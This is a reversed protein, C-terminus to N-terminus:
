GRPHAAASGERGESARDLPNGEPDFKIPDRVYGELREEVYRSSITYWDRCQKGEIVMQAVMFGMEMSDHMDNNLLLGHRGYSFLNAVESLGGIVRELDAEFGLSYIPYVHPANMVFGDLIVRPHLGMVKLDNMAMGIMFDDSANWIYDNFDCTYDLCVVTRGPPCSGRNLNKQESLRNAYLREDLLYIWHADSFQDQGLVLHVCRLSRYKINRAGALSHHFPTAALLNSLHPLPISSLVAGCEISELNGNLTFEVSRAKNESVKISTPAAGLIVRGGSEEVHRSLSEFFTGIGERPYADYLNQSSLGLTDAKDSSLTGIMALVLEKLDITRLKQKALKASLRSGPLGWMKESYNGFALRYLTRGFHEIGWSEFTEEAPQPGSFFKKFSHQYAYDAGIRAMLLPSLNTAADTLKLPFPMTKGHLWLKANRHVRNCDDGVFRNFVDTVVSKKLHFTHPGYDAIYKGKRVSAGMGGVRPEKELVIVKSGRFSLWYAAGIGAPGAGLVVM